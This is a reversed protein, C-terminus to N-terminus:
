LLRVPKCVRFFVTATACMFDEIYESTTGEYRVRVIDEALMRVTMAGVTSEWTVTRTIVDGCSDCLFCLEENNYNLLKRPFM